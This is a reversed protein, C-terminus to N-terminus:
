TVRCLRFTKTSSPPWGNQAVVSCIGCKQVLSESNNIRGLLQQTKTLDKLLDIVWAEIELNKM